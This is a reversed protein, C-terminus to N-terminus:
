SKTNLKRLQEIIKSKSLSKSNAIKRDKALSRLEALTRNEYRKKSTKGGKILTIKKNNYFCDIQIISKNLTKYLEKIKTSALSLIKSQYNNSNDYTVYSSGNTYSSPNNIRKISKIYEIIYYNILNKFETSETTIINFEKAEKDNKILETSKIYNFIGYINNM